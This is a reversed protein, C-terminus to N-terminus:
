ALPARPVEAVLRMGEASTTTALAGGFHQLRARLTPMSAADFNEPAADSEILLRLDTGDQTLTVTVHTARGDTEFHRTCEQVLRYIAIAIRPDLGTPEEDFRTACVIGSRAEFADTEMRLTAVLGLSDIMSPRLSQILRRKLEVAEKLVRLARELRTRAVGEPLQGAVSALDLNIATLNSGLEDHLARALMEREREVTELLQGALGLDAARDDAAAPREHSM